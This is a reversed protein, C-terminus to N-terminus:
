SSVEPTVVIIRETRNISTASTRVDPHFAM